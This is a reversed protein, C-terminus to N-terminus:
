GPNLIRHHCLHPRENESDWLHLSNGRCVKWEKCDACDGKKTWSRDRFPQYRNEWVDVFDDQQVNGQSLWPALNPCAAISGDAMIGAINVGARCFYPTSRVQKDWHWGLHGEESLNVELGEEQGRARLRAMTKVLTRIGDDDLLLHRNVGARGIPFINFVRWLHAGLDRVIEYTAELADLHRPTCCTIAEVTPIGAELCATIARCTREFAGERNRLWDHLAPPGDLSVVVNEVGLSALTKARAPNLAIGNTVMGVRFGLGRAHAIAQPLDKRVLPEGGTIVLVIKTADWTQAIRSLVGQLVDLPLGTQEDDRGCDSGCHLCDLNCRRTAEWFLYRLQHLDSELDQVLSSRADSFAKSLVKLM